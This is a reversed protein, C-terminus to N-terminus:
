YQKLRWRNFWLGAIVIVVIIVGLLILLDLNFPDTPPPIPRPTPTPKAAQNVVDFIISNLPDVMFQRYLFPNREAIL